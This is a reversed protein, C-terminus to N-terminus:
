LQIGELLPLKHSGVATQRDQGLGKTLSHPRGRSKLNQRASYPKPIIKQLTANNYVRQFFNLIEDRRSTFDKLFKKSMFDRIQLYRFHDQNQLGFKERLDHFSLVKDQDLLTCFATLGNETWSKFRTDYVSPVFDSDYSFWKFM